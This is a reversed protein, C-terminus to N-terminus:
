PPVGARGAAKAATPLDEGRTTVGDTFMVVANLSGGRFTKVVSAVGTGLQSTEGTPMVDMIEDLLKQCQEPDNLEAIQTAQASVRYVHVRMQRQKLFAQLWEGLGSALMAKVLNLRHPTQLDLVRAEIQALEERHRVADASNPDRSITRNIEEAREKLAKIRPAAIKEWERKLEDAKARVASDRFNDVVAMSRSEDFVIVVDPWGEREFALRLQPLLVALTLALLGLRLAGLRLLPNRWGPIPPGTAGPGLRERSYFRWVYLGALVLLGGVLWRDSSQDGTLFAMSELRWRTGEGPSAAPVGLWQEIPGRVSSPLFGLFEGTAVAHAVIAFAVVSVVLPVAWLPTLWRTPRMRMPDPSNSARSSGYRWALFTELLILGLAIFLVVRAVAPGRPEVAMAEGEGTPMAVPRYQIESVESVVQIDADPAASKFDSATLRRLDSEAGGTPSVVPVNVAFLADYKGGVNLRCIGSRDANRLLALGAEDQAVVPLSEGSSGDEYSVTASLGVFTSPMYAELPEGAQITQRTAPAVAFRLLEQIFPAFSLTRPWENWDANLSSAFVIVRGRHRPWEVVAPDLQNQKEDGGSSVFSFLRRAPGNPPLDLRIYRGFRPTAFSSQEKESRFGSLPSQKFADADAFLSFYQGDAARRVGVLPGPLLGKGDNFLVRNYADINKAANPGLGIVVSGGRKLHAELRAAENGGITPLDCLFVVEIPADPKFLDGLGADQFDRPTIVRVAAPSEASREGEPFPNLARSLFGSARDLPDPSLKGNVVMVPITDRVTVALSRSDDLRLPDEGIRVQLVYQGPERFRNQRDLPFSVPAAANSQVTILKQGLEALPVKTGARGVFLSVPLDRREQRGHNHVTATVALDTHVLPLPDGLSVSTVAVNDVDQGAVDIAIVRASGLIRGWAEAAASSSGPPATEASKAVGTPLTWASKRLDSVLYVERRAYKGLPKAAMEAVAHLGGAVDASGHPLTLDDIERAVKSPDDAPGPVVVKAPSGLMIVSFGDGPAAKDLIAKARARAADFRTLDDPRRTAMTFSADLVIIKHTRGRSPAALADGPFLRQWVPEFWPMVAAMALIVLLVLLVRTALLLWQELKLRRVNKKQAALLFRMAAWNVVVYRKRNLLHIIIPVAAAGGAVALVALPSAFIVGLLTALQM